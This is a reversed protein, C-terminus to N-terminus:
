GGLRQQELVAAIQRNVQRKAEEMCRRADSNRIRTGTATTDAECVKRAAADIRQDLVRQGAPTSLALDDYKVTVDRALAPAAPIALGIAAAICLIPKM